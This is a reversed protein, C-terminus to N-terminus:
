EKHDPPNTYPLVTSRVPSWRTQRKYVDIRKEFLSVIQDDIADIEDRLKVLDEM